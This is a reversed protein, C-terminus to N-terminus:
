AADDAREEGRCPCPRGRGFAGPLADPCPGRHAFHSCGSCGRVVPDDPVETLEIRHFFAESYGCVLCTGDPAEEFPHATPRWDDTPRWECERCNGLQYEDDQTLIRDCTRCRFDEPPEMPNNQDQERIM